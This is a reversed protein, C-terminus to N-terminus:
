RPLADHVGVYAAQQVPDGRQLLLQRGLQVVAVSAEAMADVVAVDPQVEQCQRTADAASAVAGAIAFTPGVLCDLLAQRLTADATVILVRIAHPSPPM